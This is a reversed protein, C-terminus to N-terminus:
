LILTRPTEEQKKAPFSSLLRSLSVIHILFIFLAIDWQNGTHYGAMYWSMLMSYLSDSDMEAGSPWAAPPPPPPISMPAHSAHGHIHTPFSSDPEVPQWKLDPVASSAAKPPSKYPLECEMDDSSYVDVAESIQKRRAAPGATPLLDGLSVEEENNYGTSYCFNM